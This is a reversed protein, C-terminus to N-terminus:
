RTRNEKAAVAGWVRAWVLFSLAISALWVERV